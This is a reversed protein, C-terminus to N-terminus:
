NLKIKLAEHHLNILRPGKTVLLTIMFCFELAVRFFVFKIKHYGGIKIRNQIVLYLSSILSYFDFALGFIMQLPDGFECVQIGPSLHVTWKGGKTMTFRESEFSRGSKPGNM